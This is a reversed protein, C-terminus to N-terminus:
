AEVIENVTQEAMLAITTLKEARWM